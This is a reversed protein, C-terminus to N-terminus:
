HLFDGALLNDLVTAQIEVGPFIAGLPTARLDYLGPALLGFFVYADQLRSPEVLPAAGERLRLESQVIAAASLTPFTGAPGRYRVIARGEQDLRITRDGLALHEGSLAARSAPAGALLLALPLAPVPREGLRDVLVTRRYVGDRDPAASVNGLGAFARGLESVPFAASAYPRIGPPWATVTIAPSTLSEETSARERHSLAVAGVTPLQRLAEALALDDAVGYASGETFLLDFAVARAGARKCFDLILRYAERPWPWSLGNELRGWDLSAQDVAIIVIPQTPAHAACTSARWRWTLNELPDLWGGRWLLLALLAAIGGLLAGQLLPRRM